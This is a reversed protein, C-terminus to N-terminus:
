WISCLLEGGLKKSKAEGDTMIGQSTSLVIVGIGGLIQPIEKTNSYLRLGPKSLRQLNTICPQNTKQDYKLHVGIAQCITPEYSDILGERALIEIIQQNIKTWPIYVKEEQLLNANRIRTLMDSLTDNRMKRM